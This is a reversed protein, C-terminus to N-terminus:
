RKQSVTDGKVVRCTVRDAALATVNVAKNGSRTVQFDQKGPLREYSVTAECSQGSWTITPKMHFGTGRIGGVLQADKHTWVIGRDTMEIPATARRVSGKNAGLSIATFLADSSKVYVEVSKDVRWVGKEPPANTQVEQFGIEFSYGQFQDLGGTSRSAPAPATAPTAAAVKPRPVVAPAIPSMTASPAPAVPAAAALQSGAAALTVIDGGLSGYVFPEQKRRTTRLVEDRVRGLAIRLDLGPALLHNILATTFPSNAGDGDAATTGAKAAYAILTDSAAPEVKALGRGVSRTAVTRKMTKAFPNDRCADLIVLRLRKAPDIVRMLRDLSVGEDEADTDRELATDTPLLYNTGDVEIGHGAYFVVAIDADQTLDAFDRIVRRMETAALDRRAVVEFGASKLLNEIAAADKAPNALRGVNKYASNGIVLAVRKEALAEAASWVTLGLALLVLPLRRVFRPM